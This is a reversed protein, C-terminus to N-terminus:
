SIAGNSLHFLNGSISNRNDLDGAYDADSYGVLQTNESKKYKMAIDATSKLYHLIRKVATLHAESSKSCYKSVVGVAQSIDPRTAIAAYLSSGVMSQYLVPDVAKSVGDKRRLKVNPDAPTAVPKSNKLGYRELLKLIYQKQQIEM